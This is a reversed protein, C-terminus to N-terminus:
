GAAAATTLRSLVSALDGGDATTSQIVGDAGIVVFRERAGAGFVDAVGQHWSLVTANGPPQESEDQEIVLVAAFGAETAAALAAAVADACNRCSPPQFILVFPRGRQDTLRWRQQADDSFELLFDPAVAGATAAVELGDPTLAAPVAKLGTLMRSGIPEDLDQLIQAVEAALQEPTGGGIILQRITGDPQIFYSNPPGIQLYEDTVNGSFDMPLPFNVRFENAFDRAPGRSEEMNVGVVLLGDQLHRAQLDVLAPMEQRCPGCWSAWFNLLVPHGRWDSLRFRSGDLTELEFDPALEGERAAVARSDPNLYDPLDVIGGASAGGGGLGIALAAAIAGAALLAVAGRQWIRGPM